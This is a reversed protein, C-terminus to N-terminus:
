LEEKVIEKTFSLVLSNFKQLRDTLIAKINIVYSNAFLEAWQETTISSMVEKTMGVIETGNVSKWENNQFYKWDKSLSQENRFSIQFLMPNEETDVVDIRVGEIGTANEYGIKKSYPIKINDTEISQPFPIANVNLNLGVNLNEDEYWGCLSFNILTENKENIYTYFNKLITQNPIDTFGCKKFLEASLQAPGSEDKFEEDKKTNDNWHEVEYETLLIFKDDKISYFGLDTKFLMKEIIQTIPNFSIQAKEISYDFIDSIKYLTVNDDNSSMRLNYTVNNCIFFSKDLNYKYRPHNLINIWIDGTDFLFLDYLLKDEEEVKQFYSEWRFRIFKHNEITGTERWVNECKALEDKYMALDETASGFGWYSKDNAYIYRCEKNAIIFNPNGYFILQGSGAVRIKNIIIHEMNDESAAIADSVTLYTQYIGYNFPTPEEAEDYYYKTEINDFLCAIGYDDIVPILDRVLIEEGTEESIDYIQIYYFRVKNNCFLVIPADYTTTSWATKSAIQTGNVTIYRNGLEVDYYQYKFFSTAQSVRENYYDFYFLSNYNLLRFGGYTGSKTLTDIFSTGNEAVCTPMIGVRVRMTATPVYEINISQAGTGELYELIEM